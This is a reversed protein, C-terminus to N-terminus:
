TRTRNTGTSDRKGRNFRSSGESLEAVTGYIQVSPKAYAKRVTAKVGDQVSSLVEQM